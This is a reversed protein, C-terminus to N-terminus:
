EASLSPSPTMSAVSPVAMTRRSSVPLAASRMVLYRGGHGTKTHVVDLDTRACVLVLNPWIGQWSSPTGSTALETSLAHSTAFSRSMGNSPRRTIRTADGSPKATCFEATAVTTDTLSPTLVGSGVSAIGVVYTSGPTSLETSDSREERMPRSRIRLGVCEKRFVLITQVRPGFHQDSSPILNSSRAPRPTALNLKECPVWSSWWCTSSRKLFAHSSSPSAM